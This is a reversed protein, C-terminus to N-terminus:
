EDDKKKAADTLSWPLSKLSKLKEDAEAQKEQEDDEIMAQYFSASYRKGAVKPGNDRLPDEAKEIPTTDVEGGESEIEPLELEPEVVDDSLPTYKLESRTSNREEEEAALRAAEDIAHQARLKEAEAAAGVYQTLFERSPAFLAAGTVAQTYKMLHDFNGHADSYIMSALMRTFNDAFRCYSVFYLGQEKLDGYPMSQRLIEVSDGGEDKIGSRKVHSTLPKEDGTFEVNDTKTRGIVKEQDSVDLGNWVPLNHIYRQIHVYSGGVFPRDEQGVIAVKEKHDGQPNETGDVFGTLDRSDLYRFTPISEQLIALEGLLADVRRGVVFNIDQRDCRIQFFLDCPTEPAVRQEQKMEPFPKLAAPKAEPYLRQWAEAGIAVVGTLSPVNFVRKCEDIMAPFRGLVDKILPLFDDDTNLTYTIYYGHATSDAMIGNQFTGVAAELIEEQAAEPSTDGESLESDAKEAADDNLLEATSPEEHSLEESLNSAASLSQGLTVAETGQSAQLAADSQGEVKAQETQLESILEETKDQSGEDQKPIGNDNQDQMM